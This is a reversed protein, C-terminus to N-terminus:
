LYAYMDSNNAGYTDHIYRKFIYDISNSSSTLKQNSHYTSKNNAIFKSLSKRTNDPCLSLKQCIWRFSYPEFREDAFLWEFADQEYKNPKIDLFIDRVARELVAIMLTYEGTFEKM